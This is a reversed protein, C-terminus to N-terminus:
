GKLSGIMVGKVFYKQLFPYAILIPITSVTLVASKIAETSYTQGAIFNERGSAIMELEQYASQMVIQRLFIQLPYKSESTLYILPGMYSNWIGVAYYLTIVAIIPMSLPLVIRLYMDFDGSGEIEAAEYLELPLNRLFTRTLILNFAGVCGPVIIAWITNVMGLNRILLYTPILGGGFYMTVLIFKMYINAYRSFKPLSLPYATLTTLFVSLITGTATYYISNAFGTILQRGQFVVQYANLSFGRPLLFVRRIMTQAPTSLSSSLVYIFPYLTIFGLFAIAIYNIWEGVSPSKLKSM